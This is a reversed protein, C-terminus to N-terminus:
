FLFKCFEPNIIQRGGNNILDTILLDTVVLMLHFCNM